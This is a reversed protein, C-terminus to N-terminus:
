RQLEFKTQLFYASISTNDGHRSQVIMSAAAHDVDWIANETLVCKYLVYMGRGEGMEGDFLM